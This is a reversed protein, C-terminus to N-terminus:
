KNLTERIAFILKEAQAHTLNNIAITNYPGTSSSLEIEGRVEIQDRDHQFIELTAKHNEVFRRLREPPIDAECIRAFHQILKKFTDDTREAIAKKELHRAYKGLAGLLVRKALSKAAEKVDRDGDVGAEVQPGGSFDQRGVYAYAAIIKRYPYTCSVSVKAGDKHILTNEKYTGDEHPFYKWEPNDKAIQIAIQRAREKRDREQKDKKEREIRRQEDYSWNLGNVM